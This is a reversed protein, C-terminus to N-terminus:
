FKREKDDILIGNSNLHLLASSIFWEKQLIYEPIPKFIGVFILAMYEAFPVSSILKKGFFEGTNSKLM